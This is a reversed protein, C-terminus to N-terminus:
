GFLALVAKTLGYDLASVLSTMFIVFVLVVTTYTLLVQRSPYIVKRLEAVVERYYTAIRSLLGPGAARGRGRAGRGGSAPAPSPATETTM